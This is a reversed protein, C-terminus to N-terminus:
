RVAPCVCIAEGTGSQGLQIADGQGEFHGFDLTDRGNSDRTSWTPVPVCDVQFRLCIRELVNPGVAVQLRVLDLHTFRFVAQFRAKLRGRKIVLGSHQDERSRLGDVHRGALHRVELIYDKLIHCAGRGVVRRHAGSHVM